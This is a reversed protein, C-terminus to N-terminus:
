IMNSMKNGIKILKDCSDCIFNDEENEDQDGLNQRLQGEQEKCYRCLEGDIEKVDQNIQSWAKDGYLKLPQFKSKQIKANIDQKFNEFHEQQFKEYKVNAELLYDLGILHGYKEHLEKQFDDLVKHIDDKDISAPLLYSIKGKTNLFINAYSVSLSSLRHTIIESILEVFTSKGRLIKTAQKTKYVSYIFKQIGSIEILLYHCKNPDESLCHAFSATTRQHDYM